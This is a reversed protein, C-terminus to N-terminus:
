TEVDACERADGRRLLHLASRIPAHIAAAFAAVALLLLGCVAVAQMAMFVGLLGAPDALSAERAGESSLALLAGLDLAAFVAFATAVRAYRAM